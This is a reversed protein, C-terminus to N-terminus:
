SNLIIEIVKENFRDIKLFNLWERDYEFQVVMNKDFQQLKKILEEVTM